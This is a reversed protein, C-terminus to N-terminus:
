PTLQTILNVFVLLHRVTNLTHLFGFPLVVTHGTHPINEAATDLFDEGVCRSIKSRFKELCEQVWIVTM